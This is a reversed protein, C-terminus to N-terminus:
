SYQVQEVTYGAEQLTDVLGNEQLLHALGVAYFVTDGSELCDAATQLIQKNREIIMANLYENYLVLEEDSLKSTDEELKSRVAAEDGACWLEYLEQVETCYEAVTYDLTEELLMVQLERSFNSMMEFQSLVSEVERIQKGKEKALKLLQMDMGNEARLSGLTLYFSEISSSWVYPKMTEIATNYSGSAKMLKVAKAYVAEDLLERPTTGDTSIYALAIQTALEPDQAILQDINEIDAEVALVDSADLADYVEQPLYATRADGAHITGMLYMEQGSTGTVKYLLPTAQTEPVKEAMPTGTVQAYSGPDALQYTQGIEMGLVYDAGEITHIGAFSTGASLPFGTAADVVMYYDGTHTEYASAYNNLFQDDQYILGATYDAMAKGWKENLKMELYLLGGLDEATASQIYELAPINDSYYGQLYDLMDAGTVTSDPEPTSGDESYTYVGDQFHEAQVFTEASASADVSTATYQLDSVHNQGVGSYHMSTQTTLTYGAAQSLITQNIASSANKASYLYLIATDYLRPAEIADIKIYNAPEPPAEPAEGDYIEAKASVEMSVPTNGQIYDITYTTKTLVGNKIRATGSADVFRANEPLAWTEPGTPDSFTLMTGADTEEAQISGYLSTDLMVVPAFRDMFADQTMDGQFRGTNFINVFLTGDAYYETFTDSLDGIELVEEMGAAFDASGIGTLTLEQKSVLPFTEAETAIDKKTTLDLVLNPADRLPQVAQTYLDSVPPETPAETSSPVTEASSPAAPTKSGCGALGLLLAFCLLLSVLTRTKHM